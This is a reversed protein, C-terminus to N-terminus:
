MLFEESFMEPHANYQMIISHLYFSVLPESTRSDQTVLSLAKLISKVKVKVINEKDSCRLRLEHVRNGM